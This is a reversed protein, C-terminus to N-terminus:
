ELTQKFIKFQNIAEWQTTLQYTAILGDTESGGDTALDCHAKTDFLRVRASLLQSEPDYITNDIFINEHSLGLVKRTMEYIADISGVIVDYEAFWIEKNFDILVEVKWYGNSTPIFSLKYEGSSGIESITVPVSQEIGDKWVSSDFVTEGSRKTYGDVDFVPFQDIVTSGIQIERGM